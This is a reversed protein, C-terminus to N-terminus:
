QQRGETALKILLVTIKKRDEIEAETKLRTMEIEKAKNQAEKERVRM